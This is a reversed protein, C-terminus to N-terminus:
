SNVSKNQGDYEYRNKIFEMDRYYIKEFIDTRSTKKIFVVGTKVDMLLKRTYIDGVDIEIIPIDEMEIM